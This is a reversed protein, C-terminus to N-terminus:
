RSALGFMSSCQFYDVAAVLAASIVTPTMRCSSAARRIYSHREYGSATTYLTPQLCSPKRVVIGLVGCLQVSCMSLTMMIMM